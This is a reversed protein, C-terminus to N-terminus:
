SAGKLEDLIGQIEERRAPSLDRNELAQQLHNQARQYEGILKYYMGLNYQALGQHRGAGYILGLLYYPEAYDPFEREIKELCVAAEETRGLEKYTRALYFQFRAVHPDGETAQSLLTLAESLQGQFFANVGREGQVLSDPVGLAAARDLYSNAEAYRKEAQYTLALGYYLYPDDKSNKQRESGWKERLEAPSKMALALGIQCRRLSAPDQRRVPAPHTLILDELYGIREELVPHTSMYSPVTPSGLFRHRRIKKFTSILGRVDYGAAEIWKFAMRDAEEEDERSYKLSLTSSTALAGTAIAEGAKGGGLFIGALAGAMTIISLRQMREMRRAIHRAVVHAIEHAMIGALESESDMAEIMGSHVFLLGSPAAFANLAEDSIVYFKYEFFQPGAQALIKRGVQEVYSVVDPDSIMPLRSQVMLRFKKGLVREEEPSLSAAGLISAASPLPYILSELLLVLFTLVAIIRM